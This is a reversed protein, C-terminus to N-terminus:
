NSPCNFFLPCNLNTTTSFCIIKRNPFLSELLSLHPYAPPSFFFLSIFLLFCGLSILVCM